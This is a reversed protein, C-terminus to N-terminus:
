EDAGKHTRFRRNADEVLSTRPGIHLTPSKQGLMTPHNTTRKSRQRREAVFVCMCKRKARVMRADYSGTNLTGRAVGTSGCQAEIMKGLIEAGTPSCRNNSLYIDDKVFPHIRYIVDKAFPHFRDIASSAVRVAYRNPTGAARPLM